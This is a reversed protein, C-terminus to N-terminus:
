GQGTRNLSTNLYARVIDQRAVMGILTGKSDVVPMRIFRSSQLIGILTAISTKPTVSAPHRTMVEYAALDNWPRGRGLVDLLDYESVIGILRQQDDVIPVSGFGEVMFSALVDAKTKDHASQVEKEMIQDVTLNEFGAHQSESNSKM